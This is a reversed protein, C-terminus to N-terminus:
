REVSACRGHRRVDYQAEQTITPSTMAVLEERVVARPGGELHVRSVEVTLHPLLSGSPPYRGGFPNRPSIGTPNRVDDGLGPRRVEVLPQEPRRIGVGVQVVPQQERVPKLRGIAGTAEIPEAFVHPKHLLRQQSRSLVKERPRPAPSNVVLRGGKDEKPPYLLQGRLELENILDATFEVTGRGRM